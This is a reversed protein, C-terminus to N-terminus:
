QLRVTVAGVSVAPLTFKLTKGKVAVPAPAAKITDPKTLTNKAGTSGPAILQMEASKIKQSGDIVVTVAVAEPGTNVAKFTVTKGDLSTAAVVNLPEEPGLVALRKPQFVDRWLVLVEHMPAGFSTAHDFIISCSGWRPSPKEKSVKQLWVAPCSMTLLGNLREFGNLIGGTYLGSPWGSTMMGWESCYVLMKPNKSKAIMPALEDRIYNEYRRPDDVYDRPVEIGNYYHISLYDFDTAAEDILTQNWGLTRNKDNDYSCGGCAIIKITPDKARLAKSYEKVKGAYKKAGMGWTENDIEWYKVNYPNPHGNKARLKGWKTAISGNCYELWDLANQLGYGLSVPIVPEAKMRRCLDMFEDTGM